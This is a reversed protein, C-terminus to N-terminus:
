LEKYVFGLADEPAPDPQAMAWKTAEAVDAEIRAEILDLHEAPFIGDNQVRERFLKIPDRAAWEALEERPRYRRDDDDSSHAWLRACKAEILFPGRGRRAQDVAQKVTQYVVIADM